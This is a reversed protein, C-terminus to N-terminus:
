SLRLGAPLADGLMRKADSDSLSGGREVLDLWTGPAQDQRLRDAVRQRLIAGVDLENDTRLAISAAAFAAGDAKSWDLALIRELWSSAIEVPIIGGTEAHFLRRAGVRGIPWYSRLKNARSFFLEGCAQKATSDLRELSALLQMMEIPGHKHPGPPTPGDRWLWPRLDAYISGQQEASLGGAIRRWVIWWESWNAKTTYSLSEGYLAWMQDIRAEDRIMGFGPRLCWGVMRMWNLEHLESRHRSRAHEFCADWIARCVAASWQGRPGIVKEVERRGNKVAQPQNSTMAHVWAALAVDFREPLEDSPGVEAEAEAEDSGIRAKTMQQLSFALRWRRAPLAVTVLYLELAGVDTLTAALTVPVTSSERVEGKFRLVTELWPLPELGADDLDGEVLGGIPDKRDGTYAYLPFAVPRDLVLDFVRDHVNLSAGEEMGLPAVCLAEREGGPGEIGIYYARATGGRIVEGVGRRALASRVAGRAVATELSTHDLLPVPSGYWDQMVAKLREILAPANFVGGNLLLLDPKPLGDHIEAGADRAADVHKRLFACIHRGIATDTTYPLGLTTLGARATRQAVEDPGSHPLFGDLVVQRAEERKIEISRTGGILRSGRSQVTIVTDDPADDALLREKAIRASQVMGSWVSADKPRDMATKQVAFMALAADMNDGGLMLHGGVAIREIEHDADVKLLTLDTTGGGVDVVLILKADGLQTELEGHHEGFFDYFAAQPEELLRVDGLGAEKAAQATLERAAEDFSAPVTVVVDQEDLPAEPFKSRWMHALHMLYAVQAAYPSLHEAAEPANWPLIPAKRNVGGHCIWSKASSVLRQPSKAGLRRAVEGVVRTSSGWPLGLATEDLEGTVPLYLFSPLLEREAVEGLAVLQPISLLRVIPEDLSAAAVACHTTGLDIGVVYQPTAETM